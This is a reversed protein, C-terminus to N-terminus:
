LSRLNRRQQGASARRQSQRRMNPFCSFHMLIQNWILGSGILEETGVRIDEGAGPSDHKTFGAQLVTHWWQKAAETSAGNIDPSGLVEFAFSRTVKECVQSFLVPTGLMELGLIGHANIFISGVQNESPRIAEV